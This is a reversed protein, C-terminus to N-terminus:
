LITVWLIVGATVLGAVICTYLVVREFQVLENDRVHETMYESLRHLWHNPLYVALPLIACWILYLVSVGILQLEEAIPLNNSIAGLISIMGFSVLTTWILALLAKVYRIVLRRLLLAHRAMSIEMRAVEEILPRDLLAALGLATNLDDIEEKQQPTIDDFVGISNLKEDHRTKPIISKGYVERVKAFYAKNQANIPSAFLRLSSGYERRMIEDKVAVPVEDTSLAIAALSFRPHFLNTPFGPRYVTFYFYVLDKILSWLAYIPIAMSIAFPVLLLLAPGLLNGHAFGILVNALERVADKFMVPFLFLLGAGNLFIGAVRHMTSLRVESRQLYARMAAKAEPTIPEITPTSDTM